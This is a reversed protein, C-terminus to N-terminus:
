VADFIDPQLLIGKAEINDAFSAPFVLSFRLVPLLRIPQNVGLNLIM